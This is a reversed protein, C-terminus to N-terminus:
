ELLPDPELWAILAAPLTTVFIFIGWFVAQLELNSQPLWGMKSDSAIYVYLSLAMVLLTLMQYARVYMANRFGRQREDLLAQDGDSIGLINPMMLMGMCMVSTLGFLLQLGLRILAPSAFVWVLVLLVYGGYCGIVLWRRTSRKLLPVQWTQTM